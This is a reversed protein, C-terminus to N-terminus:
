PTAIKKEVLGASSSWILSYIDDLPAEFVLWGSTQGGPQLDVADFHNSLSYTESSHSVTYGNSDRLTFYGPNAHIETSGSNWVSACVWIYRGSSSKYFYHYGDPSTRTVKVKSVAIQVAGYGDYYKMEARIKEKERRLRQKEALIRAEDIKRACLSSYKEADKRKPTEYPVKRFEERAEEFDGQRYLKLGENYHLLGVADTLEKRRKEVIVKMDKSIAIWAQTLPTLVALAGTVNGEEELKCSEALILESYRNALQEVEHHLETLMHEPLEAIGASDGTVRELFQIAQSINDRSDETTLSEAYKHTRKLLNEILRPKEAFVELFRRMGRGDLNTSFTEWATEALRDVVTLRYSEELQEWPVKEYASLAVSYKGKPMQTEFARECREALHEPKTCAAAALSIIGFSLLVFTARQFRVAFMIRRIM